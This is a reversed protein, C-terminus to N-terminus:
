STARTIGPLFEITGHAWTILEGSALLVQLDYLKRGALLETSKAGTGVLKVEIVGAEADTIEIQSADTSDLQLRAAADEARNSDKVTFWIKAGTLDVAVGGRKLTFTHTYSDGAHLVRAGDGRLNDATIDHKVSM